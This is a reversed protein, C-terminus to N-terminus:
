MGDLYVEHGKQEVKGCLEMSRVVNRVKVKRGEFKRRLWDVWSPEVVWGVHLVTKREGDHFGTNLAFIVDRGSRTSPVEDMANDVMNQAVAKDSLVAEAAMAPDDPYILDDEDMIPQLTNGDLPYLKVGAPLSLKGDQGMSVIDGPQITHSMGNPGMVTMPSTAVSVMKQQPPGPFGVSVLKGDFAHQVYDPNVILDGNQDYDGPEDKSSMSFSMSTVGDMFKEMSRKEQHDGLLRYLRETMHEDVREVVLRSGLVKVEQGGPLLKFIEMEISM